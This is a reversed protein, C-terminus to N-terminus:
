KGKSPALGLQAAQEYTLKDPEAYQTGKEIAQDWFANADEKKSSAKRLLEDFEMPITVSEMFAPIGQQEPEPAPLSSEAGIQELVTLIEVKTANLLDITASISVLDALGKGVVWLVHAQGIPVFVLDNAEGDFLHLHLEVKGLLSAVKQAANHMAMLAAILSVRSGEPLEGTEAQVHGLGNLLFVSQADLTKRLGALLDALSKREPLTEKPQAAATPQLITRAMGLLREVSDLFEAMQVPKIFYADAGAKEIDAKAKPDSVGSIIIIKINPTRNRIKQMLEVGSMGPLRYDTILLDVPTRSAELLAEEGSPAESVKLGQEITELASRLLRSVDRQDDVILIRFTM